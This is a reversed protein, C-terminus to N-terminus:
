HHWNRNRRKQQACGVSLSTATERQDEFQLEEQSCSGVQKVVNEADAKRCAAIFVDELCINSAEYAHLNVGVLIEM